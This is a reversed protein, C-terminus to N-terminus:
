TKSFLKNYLEESIREGEETISVSKAKGKPDYIYGKEYLRNMVEWDIGKWARIDDAKGHMTLFLLALAAEDIKNTDINDETETEM